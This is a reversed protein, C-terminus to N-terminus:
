YMILLIKKIVLKRVPVKKKKKTNENLYVMSVAIEFKWSNACLFCVRTGSGLDIELSQM